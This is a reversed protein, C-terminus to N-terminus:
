EAGASCATWAAGRPSARDRRVRLQLIVAARERRWSTSHVSLPDGLVDRVVRTVAKVPHDTESLEILWPHRRVTRDTSATTTSGSSSCSPRSRAKSMSATRWDCSPRMTRRTATEGGGEVLGLVPAATAALRDGVPTPTSRRRLRPTRGAPWQYCGPLSRSSSRHSAANVSSGFRAAPRRWSASM